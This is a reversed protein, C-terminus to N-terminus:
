RTVPTRRCPRASSRAPSWTPRSRLRAGRAAEPWADLMWRLRRLARAAAGGEGADSGAGAARSRGGTGHEGSARGAGEARGAGAAGGSAGEAGGEAGGARGAGAAGGSAREAGGEAGGARGAGAASGSAREAGGEAGGARGAGAASGSAREAGGEAGGTRGARGDDYMVGPTLPRGAGDVLLITGSTACVAVGRVREPAVGRLAERSAAAVADWWSGPDQEHRAGERVSRLAVAGRGVVEGDGAVVMARVSQTGVDLGIWCPPPDM